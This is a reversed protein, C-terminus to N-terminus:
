VKLQAVTIALMESHVPLDTVGDSTTVLPNLLLETEILTLAVLVTSMGYPPFSVKTNTEEHSNPDLDVQVAVPSGLVVAPTTGLLSLGVEPEVM